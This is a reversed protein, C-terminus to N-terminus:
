PLDSGPLSDAFERLLRAIESVENRPWKSRFMELTTLLERRLYKSSRKASQTPIRGVAEAIIDKAVSRTIREGNTARKVAKKRASEPASPAALLYAASLDIELDAVTASKFREAVRIFNRASREQWGFETKLWLLFLGHPLNKKVEVLEQGISIVDELSRKVLYRIRKASIRTARATREDLKSYFSSIEASMVTLQQSDLHIM